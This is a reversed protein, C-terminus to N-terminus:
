YHPPKEHAPASTRLQELTRRLTHLEHALGATERNLAAVTANLADLLDGQWATQIELAEVRAALTDDNM